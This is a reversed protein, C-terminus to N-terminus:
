LQKRLESAEKILSMMKNWTKNRNEQELKFDGNESVANFRKQLNDLDDMIYNLHLDQEKETM